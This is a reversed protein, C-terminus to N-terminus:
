LLGFYERKSGLIKTAIETQTICELTIVGFNSAVLRKDAHTRLIRNRRTSSFLLSIITFYLVAGWVLVVLKCLGLLVLVVCGFVDDCLMSDDDYLM